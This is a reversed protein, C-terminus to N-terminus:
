QLLPLLFLGYDGICDIGSEWASCFVSCPTIRVLKGALCFFFFLRAYRLDACPDKLWRGYVSPKGNQDAVLKRITAARRFVDKMPLDWIGSPYM